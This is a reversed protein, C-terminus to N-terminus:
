GGKRKKGEEFALSKVRSRFKAETVLKKDMKLSFKFRGRKLLEACGKVKTSRTSERRRKM